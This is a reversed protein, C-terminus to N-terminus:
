VGELKELVTEIISYPPHTRTKGIRCRFCYGVFHAKTFKRRCGAVQAVKTIKAATPPRGKWNRLPVYMALTIGESGHPAIVEFRFVLRRSQWPQFVVTKVSICKAIVEPETLLPPYDALECVFDEDKSVVRLKSM